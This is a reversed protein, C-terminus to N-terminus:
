SKLEQINGATRNDQWVIVPSLPRGTRADWALCSEGQNSLGLARGPGASRFCEAVNKLLEHPDHEVWGLHPYSQRHKISKVVRSSGDAELILARTSTTGQDVAVISM